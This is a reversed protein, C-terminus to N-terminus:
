RQRAVVELRLPSNLAAPVKIAQGGKLYPDIAEPEAYALDRGDDIAVVTYDGPLVTPLTFTGDSDSQDRRILTTKSLDKPLLLVMAGAFPQGDKLVVGDIHELAMAAVISVQLAAEEKVEIKGDPAPRGGVEVSKVYHPTNQLEIQYRGPPIGEITFTGDPLLQSQIRASENALVVVSVAAATQGEMILHGSISATARDHMDLTSGDWIDVIKRLGGPQEVIYRGAPIGTLEVRNGTNLFLGNAPIAAAGPGIAFISLGGSRTVDEPASLEIHVAPEARMTIDVVRVAGGTVAIPSASNPDTGGGSYTVPYAVDLETNAQKQQEALGNQAYWPRAQVALLYNGPVLQGFHFEGSSNSQQQKELDAQLKGSIIGRRFLMVQADRVPDDEEDKVVGSISGTLTLPFLIDESHLGPGTVIATSYGESQHFFEVPSNRREASLSFKAAPLYQFAFRGDEHTLCSFKLSPNAVEAITVLANRVPKNGGASIVTGSITYTTQASAAFTVLFALLNRM